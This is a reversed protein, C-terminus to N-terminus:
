LFNCIYNVFLKVSVAVDQKGMVSYRITIGFSFNCKQARELQLKTCIWLYRIISLYAAKRFFYIDLLFYYIGSFFYSLKKINSTSIGLIICSILFFIRCILSRHNMKEKKDSKNFFSNSFSILGLVLFLFFFWLIQVCSNISQIKLLQPQIFSHKLFTM